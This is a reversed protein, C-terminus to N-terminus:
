VAELIDNVPCTALLQQDGCALKVELLVEAVLLDRLSPTLLHRWSQLALLICACVCVNFSYSVKNQVAYTHEHGLFM